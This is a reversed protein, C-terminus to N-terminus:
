LEPRIVKGSQASEYAAKIVSMTKVGTTYHLPSESPSCVEQIHRLEMIFDDARTKQFEYTESEGSATDFKILKDNSSEHSFQFRCIHQGTTITGGKYVPKTVVDQVVRGFFGRDTVLSISIFEDFDCGHAKSFSASAFVEVVEGKGYTRALHQWLHLAHSHEGGAGGGRRWFGLYSDNPGKLWPHAGFIGGWHERFDVDLSIISSCDELNSLATSMDGVAHDYGVFVHCGTEDVLRHFQWVLHMDPTAFPKEILLRKAGREIEDMALSLHSEPPTGIIVLDYSSSDTAVDSALGLQIREDWRGYRSPYIETKTRALALPDIDVLEVDWGLTVAANSMHNGISGAGIVKVRWFAKKNIENNKM